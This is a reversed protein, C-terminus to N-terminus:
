CISFVLRLNAPGIDVGKSYTLALALALRYLLFRKSKKLAEVM